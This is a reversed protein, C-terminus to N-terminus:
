TLNGAAALDMMSIPDSYGNSQWWPVVVGKALATLAVITPGSHNTFYALLMGDVMQTTNANGGLLLGPVCCLNLLNTQQAQTLAAFEAWNICNLVQAGTVNLLTPISGTVTMANLQALKVATTGPTLLAWEAVLADYYAM